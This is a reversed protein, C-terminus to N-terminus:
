LLIIKVTEGSRQLKEQWADLANQMLVEAGDDNASVDLRELIEMVARKGSENYMIQLPKHTCMNLGLEFRYRKLIGKVNYTYGIFSIKREEDHIRYIGAILPEKM